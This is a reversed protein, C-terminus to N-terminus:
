WVLGFSVSRVPRLLTYIELVCRVRYVVVDRVRGGLDSIQGSVGLTLVRM